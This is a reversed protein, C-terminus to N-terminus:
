CCLDLTYHLSVHFYRKVAEYCVSNEAVVAVQCTYMGTHMCMSVGMCVCVCVNVCICTCVCVHKHMHSCM